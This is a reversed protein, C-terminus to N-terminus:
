YYLGLKFAGSDNSTPSLTSSCHWLPFAPPPRCKFNDTSHFPGKNCTASCSEQSLLEPASNNFSCSESESGVPVPLQWLSKLNIM